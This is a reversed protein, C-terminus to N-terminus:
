TMPHNKVFDKAEQSEEWDLAVAANGAAARSDPRQAFKELAKLAREMARARTKVIKFKATAPKDGLRETFEYEINVEGGDRISEVLKTISSIPDVLSGLGKLLGAIGTFVDSAGLVVIDTEGAVSAKPSQIVKDPAFDLFQHKLIGSIFFVLRQEDNDGPLINGRLFKLKRRDANERIVFDVRATAGTDLLSTSAIEIFEPLTADLFMLTTFALLRWEDSGSSTTEWTLDLSTM